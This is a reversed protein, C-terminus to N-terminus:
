PTVPLSTEVAMEEIGAKRVADLASVINQFPVKRDARLLVTELAGSEKLSILASTLDQPTILTNDLYILGSESVTVTVTRSQDINGGSAGPLNVPIGPTLFRNILAFFILLQFVVDILPAMMIQPEIKARKRSRLLSYRAHAGPM